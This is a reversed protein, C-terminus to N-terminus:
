EMTEQLKRRGSGPASDKKNLRSKGKRKEQVLWEKAFFWDGQFWQSRRCQRKRDGVVGRIAGGTCGGYSTM